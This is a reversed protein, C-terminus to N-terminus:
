LKQKILCRFTSTIILFIIALLFITTSGWVGIFILLIFPVEEPKPYWRHGFTAGIRTTSKEKYGSEICGRVINKSAYVIPQQDPYYSALPRECLNIWKVGAAGLFGLFVFLWVSLIIIGIKLSLSKM